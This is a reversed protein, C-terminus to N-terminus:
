KYRQKLHEWAEGSEIESPLWQCYAIDHAWQTRDPTPPNDIQSFDKQMALEWVMSGSDINIVPKGAVIADVGSNSNITVVVKARRIAEQIPMDAPLIKKAGAVNWTDHALPHHKVYVPLDTYRKIMYIISKYNVDLHRISMDGPVQTTLLVYDGNPAWPQLRGAFHKDWRDSPSNKNLFDARGNLGNYGLSIWEYRPELYAREMVLYDVYSGATKAAFRASWNIMLDCKVGDRRYQTTYILPVDIGHRRLGQQFSLAAMRHHVAPSTILAIKMM